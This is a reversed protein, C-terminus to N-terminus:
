AVPGPGDSERFRRALFLVGAALIGCVLAAVVIAGTLGLAGLLVEGLGEVESPPDIIKIIIPDSAPPQGQLFV